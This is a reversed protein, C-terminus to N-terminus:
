RLSYDRNIMRSIVTSGRAFIHYRSSAQTGCSLYSAIGHSAALAHMPIDAAVCRNAGYRSLRKPRSSPLLRRDTFRLSGTMMRRGGNSAFRRYRRPAATPTFIYDVGRTITSFTVLPGPPVSRQHAPQRALPMAPYSRRFPYASFADLRSALGLILIRLGRPSSSTSRRCTSACCHTSGLRVFLADDQDVPLSRSPTFLLLL